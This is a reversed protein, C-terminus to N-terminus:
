HARAPTKIETKAAVERGENQSNNLTMSVAYKHMASSEFPKLLALVNQALIRSEVMSCVRRSTSSHM